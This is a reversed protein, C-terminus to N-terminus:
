AVQREAFSEIVAQAASYWASIEDQPGGQLRLHVGQFVLGSVSVMQSHSFQDLYMVELVRVLRSIMVFISKEGDNTM